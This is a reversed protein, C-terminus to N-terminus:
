GVAHMRVLHQTLVFVVQTGHELWEAITDHVDMYLEDPAIVEVALDPAGPYYGRPLRTSELRERRLFAVNPAGVTDPDVALLFGTGVM